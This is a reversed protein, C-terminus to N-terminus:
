WTIVVLGDAGKRSGSTAFLGFVATTKYGGAGLPAFYYINDTGGPFQGNGAQTTGNTVTPHGTYSSGGGGGACWNTGFTGGGGGGYFGGGGGGGGANSGACLALTGRSGGAGGQLATGSTPQTNGNTCVGGSGGSGANGGASQTGGSGGIANDDNSGAVGINGGGAGGNGYDGRGGGGGGAAIVLATSTNLTASNFIGSYGGGGGNGAGNARPGITAGGGGYATNTGPEYNGGGGVVVHLVQGPTVSITGQAFGGGGGRTDSGGAGGAGWAYVTISYVCDPVTFTQISGTYIFRKSSLSTCLSKWCLGNYFNACKEDTNYIHLGAAPTAIANRQATTMRPLLLGKTTSSVDLIASTHPTATGIGVNNNPNYVHLAADNGSTKVTFNTANQKDNIIVDGASTVRIRENTNAPTTANTRIVFDNGDTTGIFNSSSIGSNGDVLWTEIDAPIRRWSPSTPTGANFYFGVKMPATGNTNWVLLGTKPGPSPFSSADTTSSLFINPLSVGLKTEAITQIDLAASAHPNSTNIGVNQSQVLFVVLFLLMCTFNLKKM